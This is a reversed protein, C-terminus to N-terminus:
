RALNKLGLKIIEEVTLDEGIGQLACEIEKKSYGLVQLASIAENYKKIKRNFDAYNVKSNIGEEKRVENIWDVLDTLRVKNEEKKIQSFKRLLMSM